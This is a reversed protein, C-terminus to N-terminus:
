SVCHELSGSYFSVVTQSVLYMEDYKQHEQATPVCTQTHSQVDPSALRLHRSSSPSYPRLAPLPFVLFDSASEKSDAAPRHQPTKHGPEKSGSPLSRSTQTFCESGEAKM